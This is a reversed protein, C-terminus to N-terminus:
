FGFGTHFNIIKGSSTSILLSILNVVDSLFGSIVLLKVIRRLSKELEDSSRFRQLLRINGCLVVLLMIVIFVSKLVASDVM